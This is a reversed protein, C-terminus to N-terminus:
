QNEEYSVHQPDEVSAFDAHRSQGKGSLAVQVIPVTLASYTIILLPKAGPHNVM